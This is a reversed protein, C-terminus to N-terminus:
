NGFLCLGHRHKGVVLVVGTVLMLSTCIDSCVHAVGDSKQLRYTSYRRLVTIGGLSHMQAIGNKLVVDTCSIFTTAVITEVLTMMVVSLACARCLLHM